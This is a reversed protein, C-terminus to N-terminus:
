FFGAVGLGRADGALLPVLHVTARESTPARRDAFSEGVSWGIGQGILAGAVLDSGWHRDGVIMGFGIAAAIPYAVAPVVWSGRSYATLAAAVSIAASTHGSPWAYRGAFRFPSFEHAYEPHELRDPAHPDGGHLPFPRGTGVKLVVTVVETFALAQLAASGAGAFSRDDGVLGTVYLSLPVVVPLVYGGYYAADGYAPAGLHRQVGVRLSHDAGTPSLVLTAVAAGGLYVWQWGGAARAADAGLADIPSPMPEASTGAALLAVFAASAVSCLAVPRRPRPM